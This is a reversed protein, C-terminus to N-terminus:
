TRSVAAARGRVACARRRWTDVGHCEGILQPQSHGNWLLDSVCSHRTRCRDAAGYLESRHVSFCRSSGSNASKRGTDSNRHSGCSRLRQWEYQLAYARGGARPFRWESHRRRRHRHFNCSRRQYGGPRRFNIQTPSVYMLPAVRDAGAADKVHLTVGALSNPLPLTAAQQVQGALNAGFISAISDPAVVATKSAASQVTFASGLGYYRAMWYPLIYDIGATESKGEGQSVLQFPNRQWIYDTTPRLPVPVPQCAQSGCKAVKGNLDVPVDRRPRQLWQDLLSLTQPDRAANPGALALDVANFIANQHSATHDRLIDYAQQYLGRASANTELRILNYYTIYDLNFKFYSDDNTVELTIPGLVQLSSLFGGADPAAFHSPNVHHAVQQIGLQQDLRAVFTTSAGGNPMIVSWNHQQLFDVLRTTLQAITDKAAQDDVIDYAIGLGLIVGLYQDRSTNGVWVMGASANTYIGNHSEEGQIGALYPSNVPVACRALLGTGTIDVLSAIGAIAKKANALADASRTVKYRFAEAALYHGTLDGFRRM